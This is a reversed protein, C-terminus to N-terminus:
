SKNEDAMGARAAALVADNPAQADDPGHAALAALQAMHALIESATAMRAGLTRPEETATGTLLAVYDQELRAKAIAHIAPSIGGTIAPMATRGRKM